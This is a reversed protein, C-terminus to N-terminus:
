GGLPRAPGRDKGSKGIWEILANTRQQYNQPRATLTLLPFRWSAALQDLLKSYEETAAFLADSGSLGRAKTWPYRGFADVMYKEWTPGRKRIIDKLAQRPDNEHFYILRPETFELRDQLDSWFKMIMTEPADLQGLVRVTSQMPHSEFVYRVGQKTTNLFGELKQLAMVAFSEPSHTEHIDAFAAGREDPVGVLLPHDPQSELFVQSGMLRRGIETAAMSKGSGPLGDIFVIQPRQMAVASWGELEIPTNDWNWSHRGFTLILACWEGKDIMLM